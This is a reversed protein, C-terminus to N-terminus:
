LHYFIKLQGKGFSQGPSNLIMMKLFCVPNIFFLSAKKKEEYKSLGNALSFEWLVCDLSSWGAIGAVLGLWGPEMCYPRQSVPYLLDTSFYQLIWWMHHIQAWSLGRAGQYPTVSMNTPLSREHANAWVRAQFSIMVLVLDPLGHNQMALGQFDGLVSIEDGMQTDSHVTIGLWDLVQDKNCCLAGWPSGVHYVSM